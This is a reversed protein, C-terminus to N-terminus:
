AIEPTEITRWPFYISKTHKFIPLCFLFCTLLSSIYIKKSAFKSNVLDSLRSSLQSSMSISIWLFYRVNIIFSNCLSHTLTAEWRDNSLNMLFSKRLFIKTIRCNECSCTVLLSVKRKPFGTQQVQTWIASPTQADDEWRWALFHTGTILASDLKSDLVM